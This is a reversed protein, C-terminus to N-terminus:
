VVAHAAGLLLNFPLKFPGVTSAAAVREAEQVIARLHEPTPFKAVYCQAGYHQAENLDRPQESSSLMVVPMDDFLRQCRIWRLVDFGTMGAMKVDLFCVLPAPAGRLVQILADILDDGRPFVQCENPLQAARVVRTFLLRDVEEDDVMYISRAGIPPSSEDHLHVPIFVQFRGSLSPTFTNNLRCSYVM